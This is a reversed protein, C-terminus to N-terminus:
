HKVVNLNLTMAEGLNFSILKDQSYVHFAAPPKPAILTLPLVWSNKFANTLDRLKRKLALQFTVTSSCVPATTM